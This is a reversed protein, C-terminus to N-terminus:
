GVVGIQELLQPRDKLAMRAIIKLERMWTDLENLAADRLSTAHQASGRQQRRTAQRAAVAEIQHAGDELMGGTISFAALKRQINVDTLAVAYFQQAQAIWGALTPKRRGILHLTQLAGRDDALAVRAIKVHRMYLAQAQQEAGNLADAAARLGGYATIKQQYHTKASDRLREGQLIREPTYGYAALAAQLETNARVNTIAVYAESLRQEITPTGKPM